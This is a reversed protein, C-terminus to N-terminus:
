GMQGGEFRVQLSMEASKVDSRSGLLKLAERGHSPRKGRLYGLPVAAEQMIFGSVRSLGWQPCKPHEGATEKM